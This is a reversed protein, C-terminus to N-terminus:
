GLRDERLVVSELTLEDGALVDGGAAHCRPCTWFIEEAEFTTECARCRVRIPVEEWELRAGEARTGKTLADFAFLLLEPMVQRLRGVRVRVREVPWGGHAEAVELVARVLAEAITFEHM